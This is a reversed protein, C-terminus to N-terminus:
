DFGTVCESFINGQMFCRIVLRPLDSIDGNKSYYLPKRIESSLFLWTPKEPKFEAKAVRKAKIRLDSKEIDLCYLRVFTPKISSRIIFLKGDEPKLEPLVVKNEIM